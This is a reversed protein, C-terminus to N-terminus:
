QAVPVYPDSATGSGSVLVSSKLTVVPRLAFSGEVRFGELWGVHYFANAGCVYFVCATGNFYYPSMTWWSNDGTVSCPDRSYGTCGSTKSNRYYYTNPARNEYEGGAYVVESTTIM